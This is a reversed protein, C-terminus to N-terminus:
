NKICRVSIGDAKPRSSLGASTNNFEFSEFHNTITAQTNTAYVGTTDTEVTDGDSKQRIGAKTLHLVSGIGSSYNTINEKNFEAITPVRYGDPCPNNTSSEESWLSSDNTNRWDDHTNIFKNHAPINTQTSTVGNGSGSVNDTWSIQEHGDMGRGWQYLFGYAKYNNTGDSLNIDPDFDGGDIDNYKAGLNTRLWRQGSSSLVSEYRMNYGTQGFKKGDITEDTVEIQVTKSAKYTGDQVNIEIEYINNTDNDDPSEFDFNVKNKINGTTSNIDFKEKDAGTITWTLTDDKLYTYSVNKDIYYNEMITWRSEDISLYNITIKSDENGCNVFFIATLFYLLLRFYM